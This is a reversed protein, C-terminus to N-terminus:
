QNGCNEFDSFSKRISYIKQERLFVKNPYVNRSVKKEPKSFGDKVGHRIDRINGWGWAAPLWSYFLKKPIATLVELHHKDLDSASTRFCPETGIPRSNM